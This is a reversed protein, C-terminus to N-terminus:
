HIAANSGDSLSINPVAKTQHPIAPPLRTAQPARAAFAVVFASSDLPASEGNTRSAFFSRLSSADGQFGCSRAAEELSRLDLPTGEQLRGNRRAANDLAGFAAEAHGFRLLLWRQFGDGESAVTADVSASSPQAAM